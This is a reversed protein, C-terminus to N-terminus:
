YRGAYQFHLDIWVINLFILLFVCFFQCCSGLKGKYIWIKHSTEFSFMLDESLSILKHLPSLFM